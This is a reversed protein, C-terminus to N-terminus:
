DEVQQVNSPIEPKVLLVKEKTLIVQGPALNKNKVVYKKLTYAVPAIKSTKSKSYFAAVSAANELIKKPIIEKTNEVRLVAHSGSVSRAHFWYDNQKAFRTTLQDNNKGDKGVYLHYKDDIVFHRFNFKEKQPDTESQRNEMKLEKRIENLQEITEVTEFKKKISALDSYKKQASHLLEKSKQFNVKEDRSKEYYREFNQNPSIKQDLPIKVENGDYNSLTIEKMGKKISSLNNLLLEAYLKYTHEKSGNNVRAMLNNIKSSLKSFESEIYKEINDKILTRSQRQYNISQFYTLADNYNGFYKSNTIEAPTKFLSPTMRAKGATDDYYVHIPSQLIKEINELIENNGKGNIKLEKSVFLKEALLENRSLNILLENNEEISNLFYLKKLDELFKFKADEETKKFSVFEGNNDILLFNSKNGQINFYFIFRNTKLKIIRDGFAISIGELYAPLYKEFFSFTNKKARSYNQRLQVFQNQPHTSIILFSLSEDPLRISLILKEKEQTFCELIQSGNLIPNLEFVARTLYFYNRFM